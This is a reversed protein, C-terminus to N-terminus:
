NTKTGPELEGGILTYWDPRNAVQDIAYAISALSTAGRQFAVALAKPDDQPTIQLGAISVALAERAAEWRQPWDDSERIPISVRMDGEGLEPEPRAIQSTDIKWEIPWTNPVRTAGLEDLGRRVTSYSLGTVHSIKLADAPGPILVAVIQQLSRSRM